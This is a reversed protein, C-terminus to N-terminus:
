SREGKDEVIIGEHDGSIKAKKGILCNNLIAKNVEAGEHLITNSVKSDTIACEKNITANPGIVSNKITVNEAIFAPQNIEVNPFSKKTPTILRKNTELITGLQGCDLWEDIQFYEFKAGKEIMMQLADTLQYEGKSKLGKKILEEISDFLPKYDKIYYIGIIALNTPPIEPKEIMKVIKKGKTEVIGFRTPDNTPSVGIINTKAQLVKKLSGKFITDNFVILFPEKISKKTLSIAHATGKREKQTIYTAKIEPHNEKVFKKIKTELHGTIFVIEKINLKKLEEILWTLMPKGAINILSKPTTKTLPLLRSGIGAVPIVAKMIIAM